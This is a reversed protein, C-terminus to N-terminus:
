YKEGAPTRRQLLLEAVARPTKGTVPHGLAQLREATKLDQPDALDLFEGKPKAPQELGAPAAPAPAAAPPYPPIDESGKVERGKKPTNIRDSDPHEGSKSLHKRMYDGCYQLLKANTIRLYEGDSEARLLRQECSVALIKSFKERSVFCKRAWSAPLLRLCPTPKQPSMTAGILENIRWYVGLGEARFKDALVALGEDETATTHHEFWKM